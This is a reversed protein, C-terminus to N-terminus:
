CAIGGHNAAGADTRGKAAQAETDIEQRALRRRACRRKGTDLERETVIAFWMTM